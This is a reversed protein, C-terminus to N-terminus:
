ETEFGKKFSCFHCVGRFIYPHKDNTCWSPNSGEVGQNLPDVVVPRNCLFRANKWARKWAKGNRIKCVCSIM